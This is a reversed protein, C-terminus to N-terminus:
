IVAFGIGIKKKIIGNYGYGMWGTYGYRSFPEMRRQLFNTKFKFGPLDFWVRPVINSQAEECGNQSLLAYSGDRIKGGGVVSAAVAALARASADSPSEGQRVESHNFLVHTMPSKESQLEDVLISAGVSTNPSGRFLKLITDLGLGLAYFSM